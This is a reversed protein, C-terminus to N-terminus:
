KPFYIEADKFYLDKAINNGYGDMGNIATVSGDSSNLFRVMMKGDFDVDFENELIVSSDIKKFYGEFFIVIQKEM